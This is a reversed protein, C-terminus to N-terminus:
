NLLQCNKKANQKDTQKNSPMKLKKNDKTNCIIFFCCNTKLVSTTQLYSLLFFESSIIKDTLRLLLLISFLVKIVFIPSIM